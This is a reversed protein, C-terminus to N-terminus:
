YEYKYLNEVITELLGDWVKPYNHMLIEAM